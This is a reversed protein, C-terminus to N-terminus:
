VRRGSPMVRVGFGPLDEDWLFFEMDRVPLAEVLRKTLKPMWWGRNAFGSSCLLWGVGPSGGECLRAVEDSRTAHCVARVTGFPITLRASRSAVDNSSLGDSRSADPGFCKVGRAIAATANSKAVTTTKNAAPKANAISPIRSPFSGWWAKGTVHTAKAPRPVRFPFSGINFVAHLIRSM